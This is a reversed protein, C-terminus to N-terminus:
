SADSELFASFFLSHPQAAVKQWAAKIPMVVDGANRRSFIIALRAKRSKSALLMGFTSLDPAHWDSAQLEKGDRGFWVVDRNMGPMVAKGTLFQDDFYDSFDKRFRALESVVKMLEGNMNSWDRWTTDNDQAYANNNGKQSRGFEDGATMMITGRSLFLSALMAVDKALPNPDIWCVESDNGDRNNEGNAQNHKRDFRTVDALAFGDHAAVFNVSASPKRNRQNFVDSSGAVRTALKGAAGADGRWFRRVDDRYHDNWELWGQPFNGLQYGGPGVDWPEAIHIRNGLIADSQIAKILPAEVTFGHKSRGMVTALDYRFGDIGVQLVWHRLSAIVLEVCALRDLALTNGCGSDNILDGANLQFYHANDLGRLSITGGGYDSEGTHNFVVDLVVKFGHKHLVRVTERVEALGGPALTPDPAFFSVSNYGWANRLGQRALHREDTWACIPMLEITDCGLKKFHAILPDTALAAVTGRLKEPVDPHLKTFARVPTEFIFQPHTPSSLPLAQMPKQMICRPMVSATDVGRQALSEHWNVHSSLETAFPDLLFKSVDFRHGAAEDWPGDARLGYYQGEKLGAVFVDYRDEDTKQLTVRHEVLHDDFLCLEISTANRSRVAIHAGDASLTVGFPKM